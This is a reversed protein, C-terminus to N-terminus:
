RKVVKETVIGKETTVQIFYLGAPLHSIDFTTQHTNFVSVGSMDFIRINKIILEGNEIKLEGTTPNPYVSVANLEPTVSPEMGTVIDSVKIYSATIKDFTSTVFISQMNNYYLRIPSFSIIYNNTVQWSENIWRFSETLIGNGKEDYIMLFKRHNVWSDNVWLQLIETLLHNNSDYTCTQQSKNVWLDIQWDQYLEALRNNNSDYTYTYLSSNVWSDNEWVHIMWTLLNNNSDYTYSYLQFNVWSDNRWSHVLGTLLNNNSDYSYTSIQTNIWSGNRWIQGLRTLLNNNSDYTRTEQHYYIWSDNQWYQIIRNLLNNNSDYNYTYLDYNMWSDNKWYQYIETLLNNNFDYTRTTKGDNRWSNNSQEQHIGVELLRQSQRQYEFTSRWTWTVDEGWYAYYNVTDPMWWDQGSKTQKIAPLKSTEFELYDFNTNKWQLRRNVTDYNQATTVSIGALVLVISLLFKPKM